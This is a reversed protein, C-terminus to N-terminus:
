SRDEISLSDLTAAKSIFWPADKVGQEVMESWIAAKFEAESDGAWAWGSGGFWAVMTARTDDTDLLVDARDQTMWTNDYVLVRGDDWSFIGLTCAPEAGFTPLSTVDTLGEMDAGTADSYGQYARVVALLDELTLCEDYMQSLQAEIHITLDEATETEDLEYGHEGNLTDTINEAIQEITEGGCLMDILEIADARHNPTRNLYHDFNPSTQSM